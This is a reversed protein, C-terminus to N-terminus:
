PRPGQRVAGCGPARPVAGPRPGRAPPGPGGQNRCRHTVTHFLTHPLHPNSICLGICILYLAPWGALYADSNLRPSLSLARPGRAALGCNSPCGQHHHHHGPLPSRHVTFWLAGDTLGHYQVVLAARGRVWRQGYGGCACHPHPTWPHWSTATPAGRCRWSPPTARSAAGFGPGSTPTATALCRTPSHPQPFAGVAGLKVNPTAQFSPRRFM